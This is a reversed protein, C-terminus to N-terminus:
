SSHRPLPMRCLLASLATARLRRFAIQATIHSPGRSLPRSGRVVGRSFAGVGGHDSRFASIEELPQCFFMSVNGTLSPDTTATETM